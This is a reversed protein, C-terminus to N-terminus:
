DVESPMTHMHYRFLNDKAGTADTFRREPTKEALAALLDRSLMPGPTAFPAEEPWIKRVIELGPDQGTSQVGILLGGEALAMACPRLVYAIKKEASLRARYPQVALVLDYSLEGGERPMVQDLTFRRDARSVTVVAPTVYRPNGTKPSPAVEWLNALEAFVDKIQTEFASSSDGTLVIDRREIQKDPDACTLSPAEYYYLNTFVFVTDPHEILRDPLKDMALRVDELSIEKGVVLFPANPFRDHLRRLVGSLVTGDGVGADFIRLAPPKPTLAELEEDIHEVVAFKEGCTTIFMLYKQRNDYFRFPQDPNAM